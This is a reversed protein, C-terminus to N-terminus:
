VGLAAWQDASMGKRLVMQKVKDISLGADLLSSGSITARPTIMIGKIGKAAVAKRARQVIKAWEKHSCLASEINEDIDWEIFEYRDISAVDLKMRAVFDATAGLGNTNAAAIIVCDGHRKVMGDPFAMVGNALAANFAVVAQPASGDIEDFLFVGGNEWAERFTSRVLRGNADMFGTIDYKSMLAGTCYFSLGLAKAVNSAATTKGTGPPGYLWINHRNGDAKRASCSLVLTEFEHHQLGDIKIETRNPDRIVIERPPMLKIAEDMMPKVIGRVEDADLGAKGTSLLQALLTAVQTVDALKPAPLQPAQQMPISSETKPTENKPQVDTIDDAEIVDNPFTQNPDTLEALERDSFYEPLRQAAAILTSAPFGRLATQIEGLRVRAWDRRLGLARALAIAHEKSLQSTHFVPM